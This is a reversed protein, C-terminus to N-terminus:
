AAHRDSRMPVPSGAEAIVAARMQLVFKLSPLTRRLIIGDAIVRAPQRSAPSVGTTGSLDAEPFAQNARAHASEGRPIAVNDGQFQFGSRTM